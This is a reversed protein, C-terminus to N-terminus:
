WNVDDCGTHSRPEVQFTVHGIEYNDKMMNRAADLVPHPDIDDATMLHASAADMDSTLTWVHLDHVDDVGPIRRLDRGVETVDVSDPAAEVLIRLAKRGLRWARPLIFIGIAMGFVADVWIWGTAWIVVAAIIVAVSGLMDAIVELFAGEVNISEKAGSRLLLWSIVNIVLGASAVLLMPGSLVDASQGGLRRVAEYIVYGAVAFLLLSNALAALVELRYVGFTRQPKGKLNDAAVIAALAMGIGIADTAMHGADALLSLSGSLLAAVAEIAM